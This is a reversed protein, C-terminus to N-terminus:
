AVRVFAYFTPVWLVRSGNKWAQEDLLRYHALEASKIKSSLDYELMQWESSFWDPLGTPQRQFSSVGTVIETLGTEAFLGALQRGAQLNVGQEELSRSQLSGLNVLESPYDIRGAHDPEAFAIVYGGPRTVRRMEQLVTLPSKLWLLLYHCFSFNFVSDAFPLSSGDGNIFTTQPSLSKAFGLVPFQFDLGIAQPQGPLSSLVAGTGCGVELVPGASHYGIQNFVYERLAATWKAQQLYREHWQAPTLEM